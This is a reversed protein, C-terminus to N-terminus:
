PKEFPDIEEPEANKEDNDDNNKNVNALAEKKIDIYPTLAGRQILTRVIKENGNCAAWLIPNWGDEEYNNAAGKDLWFVVDELRNEKAASLLGGNKEADTIEEEEEEDEDSEGAKKEEKKDEM